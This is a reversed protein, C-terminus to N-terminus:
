YKRILKLGKKTWSLISDKSSVLLSKNSRKEELQSTLWLVDPTFHNLSKTKTTALSSSDVIEQLSKSLHESSCSYMTGQIIQRMLSSSRTSRKRHCRYLLHLTKQMTEYQISSDERMQDMSSM